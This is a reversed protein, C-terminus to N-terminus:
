GASPHKNLDVSVVKSVGKEEMTVGYLVDSVEMTGKRHTIIIFQIHSSFKKLFEAYRLVNADDLAAEIEDLICFPTPKMKLIAFLLAIASLVKEGGSMLNINQLRKGPPEVNIEINATLEDGDALILDARGGKFLEMFTENFLVKLKALNETFVAKMKRTMDEIMELLELKAQILDEKQSNMFTYKEKIDKYEEISAVNVLGLDSIEGRIHAIERRYLEMNDIHTKYKLAEAYTLSIEDNLKLYMAELESEFKALSVQQRHSDEEKKSIVLSISELEGTRIKIDQKLKGREVESDKFKEELKTLKDAIERLMLKNKEVAQSGSLISTESEKTEESLFNIKSNLEDIEKSIRELERIKSIVVEDIQAKKIKLTTHKDKADIAETNKQKLKNQAASIKDNNGLQDEMFKQLLTNKATLEEQELFSRKRLTQIEDRYASLSEALRSNDNNISSIESQKKTIEINQYYIEDRINLCEEDLQKILQKSTDVKSVFKEILDNIEGLRLSTEEIERKRSIINASKHLISGGTLSGGPNVVEGSLTVIKYSYATRRSIDLASDMDSSVITRGLLYEVANIFKKDYDILDSAVGIFGKCQKIADINNIKKGKIINLPLFTARGMNNSKLYNILTKATAEDDTIIDSIAGGLAIELATELEKKVKIIEGLVYCKNVASPIKSSNISQMLSKVSRNYGEYQKDLNLLMQHNAELKNSAINLEKLQQEDKALISSLKSIEQKKKKIKEEYEKVKSGIDVISAELMSITTTNIKMSNVFNECSAKLDELRKDLQNSESVMIQLTSKLESVSNALRTDESKLKDVIVEVESISSNLVMIDKELSSINQTVALQEQQYVKLNNEQDSNLSMFSKLKNELSNIEESNKDIFLKTNKLREEILATESNIDQYDSKSKYFEQQSSQADLEKTELLDNLKELETKVAEKKYKIESVENDIDTIISKVKEIKGQINDISHIILNVEKEKLSDSLILFKKAKESELRLPEIREEYTRLIDGIRVLNQETNNLKKEAEEKRSKFKVIGAAEELLGRREEPRGSLIADIKGQGILSYGEKGIGTDMFLEQIDRLRCQTNNIYYESEGSRYLRRSITVDSYDIPLEGDSNDLTLSVQSLGVPKRFQTGAFIVDEMKGGRLSKVSQEGLVWRVADSINSKGSGNPGVVATVGKKFTLDTKDAFSKFGRIEISKLFM